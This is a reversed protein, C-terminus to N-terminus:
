NFFLLPQHGAILKGAQGRAFSIEFIGVALELWILLLILLIAGCILIRYRTTKVKRMVFECVLGTGFLLVGAVLFDAVDWKVEHSFQMAILPALLVLVVTLMIGSLRKNQMTM